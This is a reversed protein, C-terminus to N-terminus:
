LVSSAVFTSRAASPTFSTFVSQARSTSAISLPETGEFLAAPPLFGDGGYTMLPVLAAEMGYVLQM